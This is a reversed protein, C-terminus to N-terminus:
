RNLLTPIPCSVRNVQGTSNPQALKNGSITFSEPITHSGATDKCPSYNIGCFGRENRFMMSNEKM